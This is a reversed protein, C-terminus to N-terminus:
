DMEACMRLVGHPLGTRAPAAPHPACLVRGICTWFFFWQVHAISQLTAAHTCTSRLMPGAGAAHLSDLAGDGGGAGPLDVEHAGAAECGPGAHAHLGPLAAVAATSCTETQHDASQGDLCGSPMGDTCYGTAHDFSAPSFTDPPPALTSVQMGDAAGLEVTLLFIASSAVPLLFYPDAVTLDTFWSMGGETMSPVQEWSHM